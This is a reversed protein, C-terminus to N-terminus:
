CGGGRRVVGCVILLGIVCGVVGLNGLEAFDSQVVPFHFLVVQDETRQGSFLCRASDFFAHTLKLGSFDATSLCFVFAM